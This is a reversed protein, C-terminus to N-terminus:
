LTPQELQLHYVNLGNEVLQRNILAADSTSNTKVALRSNGNHKVTWGSQQLLKQASKPQQVKLVVHEEVQAHLDQVTGQFRLRGNEVVGIHTAVQEVESLLHSSLFVTLGQEQALRTMLERMELIGAPDLGNTPEDLILLAPNNLLAVALGLRQKMGLSYTGVPRKAAEKLRVTDLVQAVQSKNAGMMRRVVELNDQGTLHPYLSPSEVLSGVKELLALRNRKLSQGFLSVDGADPRILGLLMRITTTKGAGNPGLFAYVSSQPINLNLNSVATIKGFRRTLGTTTAIFKTM